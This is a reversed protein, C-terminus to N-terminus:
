RRVSVPLDQRPPIGFSIHLSIRGAGTIERYKNVYVWMSFSVMVKLFSEFLNPFVMGKMNRIPDTSRAVHKRVPHTEFVPATGFVDDGPM